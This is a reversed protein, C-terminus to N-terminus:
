SLPKKRNPLYEKRFLEEGRYGRWYRDNVRDRSIGYYKAWQHLKKKVGNFEYLFQKRKYEDFLNEIPCGLSLRKRLVPYGLDKEEAWEKLSKTEGNYTVYITNRKNRCNVKNTVYRCNEPSYDGNVDIRDIKLDKRWGNAMSWAIFPKSSKIWEECVRIGRGGYDKYYKDKKRYCRSKMGSWVVSIRNRKGYECKRCVHRIYGESTKAFENIRRVIKCSTCKKSSPIEKKNKRM